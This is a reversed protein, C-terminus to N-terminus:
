PKHGDVESGPVVAQVGGDEVLQGGGHLQPMRQVGVRPAGAVLGVGRGGDDRGEARPLPTTAPVPRSTRIPVAVPGVTASRASSSPSATRSRVPTSQAEPLPTM